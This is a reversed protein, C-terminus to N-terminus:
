ELAGNGGPHPVGILIVLHAAHGALAGAPAGQQGQLIVPIAVLYPLDVYRALQGAEVIVGHSLKQAEGIVPLLQRDVGVVRVARGPGHGVAGDPLFVGVVQVFVQRAEGDAGPLGQEGM